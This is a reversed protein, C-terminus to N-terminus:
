HGSAQLYRMKELHKVTPTLNSLFYAERLRRSPDSHQLYGSGGCHLMCAQVAKLTLYTVDLRLKCAEQWLELSDGNAAALEYVSERLTELEQALEDPQVGIFSNCGGQKDRANRMSQISAATVGLGLPIQYMLFAPRVAPIFSDADRAIIWDDPVFVDQFDCSYTASGNVALYSVKERLSLGALGCHVFAMVRTDDELAAVIGFAHDPGLNSVNPLLGSVIYGNDERRAKLCLREMGAYYKMPNSLGTGALMQGNELRPLVNAKLYANDSNRLYTSATLHCWLNFGTTMCVKSTEEVLRVGASVIQQETLPHAPLLGSRGLELLFDRPYYAEADVKRVVPKLTRHILENLLNLRAPEETIM